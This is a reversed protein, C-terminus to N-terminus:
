STSRLYCFSPDLKEIEARLGVFWKDLVKLADEYQSKLKLDVSNNQTFLEQMERADFTPADSIYVGFALPSTGDGTYSTHFGVDRAHSRHTPTESLHYFIFEDKNGAWSCVVCDDPSTTCICSQGNIWNEVARMFDCNHDYGNSGDGIIFGYYKEM